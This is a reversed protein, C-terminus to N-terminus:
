GAAQLSNTQLMSEAVLLKLETLSPDVYCHGQQHLIALASPDLRDLRLEGLSQAVAFYAGRYRVINFGWYAEILLKPPVEKACPVYDYRPALPRASQRFGRKAILIRSLQRLEEDAEGQALLYEFLDEYFYTEEIERDDRHLLTELYRLMLGVNHSTAHLRIADWLKFLAGGMGLDHVLINDRFTMEAPFTERLRMWDEDRVERELQTAREVCEAASPANRRRGAIEVYRCIVTDVYPSRTFPPELEWQLVDWNADYLTSCENEELRWDYRGDLPITNLFRNLTYLHSVRVRNQVFDMWHRIVENRMEGLSATNVFLDFERGELAGAFMTPVFTFDFDELRAGRLDEASRVFLTRASPFNLRLFLHSFCLTEPIDVIVHSNGPRLLKLTRALRGCGAGLELIRLPRPGLECYREIRRAISATRLFDPTLRRGQRLVNQDPDAYTSEQLEVPWAFLDLGDHLQARLLWDVAREKVPAATNVSFLLTRHIARLAAEADPGQELISLMERMNAKGWFANLRYARDYDAAEYARRVDAYAKKTEALLDHDSPIM